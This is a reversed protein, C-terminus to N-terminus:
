VNKKGEFDKVITKLFTFTSNACALWSYKKARLPGAKALKKRLKPSMIMKHLVRSIDDPKESDFYLAAAGAINSAPEKKSCAIPLASAMNELLIMGFTECTSAWVALDAKEYLSHIKKYPIEGHYSVWQGNPDECDLINNLSDLADSNAPGALDLSIPLGQKRLSSIAEVVNRHHKYKEIRSLYLIRYPKADSYETIKRQAKAPKNFRHNLGHPIITTKGPLKGTVKLTLKSAYKTLFIIGDAKRFSRSQFYRLFLLKLTFLSWGYRRLEVMDFPLLNQSMVVVPKFSGLYSGGPVFLLDCSENRAAKSLHLYQWITRQLLGKNLAVFNSKVLWPREEIASLTSLGGWVVIRDIDLQAVNIVKLVEVLHSLGGGDRINTADIGIILHKKTITRM